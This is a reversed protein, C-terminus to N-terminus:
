RIKGEAENEVSVEEDGAKLVESDSYAKGKKAILNVKQFEDISIIDKGPEAEKILVQTGPMAKKVNLLGLIGEDSGSALLMGNSEVGRLVAPKLNTVVIIKKGKLEDVSYHGKIGAVIQREPEDKGLNLKLVLLKEAKPHEKVEKIEAVKLNLINFGTKGKETAKEENNEKREGKEQKGAGSFKEQLKKKDEDVLKNFLVEAQLVKHGKEISLVGLNDWKKPETNLQKFIKEATFPLYPEILIGLDKVLNALIYLSNSAKKRDEKINKWPEAEQFYKNGLSSLTLTEKLADKIKVKELL